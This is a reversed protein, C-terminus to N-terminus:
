LYLLFCLWIEFRCPLKLSSSFDESLLELVDQIRPVAWKSEMMKVAETREESNDWEVSRLFKM